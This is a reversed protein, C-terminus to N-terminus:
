KDALRPHRWAVDTEIEDKAVGLPVECRGGSLFEHQPKLPLSSLQGNAPVSTWNRGNAREETCRPLQVLIYVMAIAHSHYTEWVTKKKAIM